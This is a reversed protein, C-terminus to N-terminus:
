ACPKTFPTTLPSDLVSTLDWLAGFAQGVAIGGDNPPIDKHTLVEFGSARLKSSVLELLLANQFCGGSLAITEVGAARAVTDAADALAHHFGLSLSEASAGRARRQSIREVIAHWNVEFLSSRDNPREVDFGLREIRRANLAAVEVMSALQGEYEGIHGLGLLVSAGDFLRGLSSCRPSAISRQFMSDLGRARIEDFGLDVGYRTGDHGPGPHMLAFAIRRADKIAAEGGLLPFPQFRAFRTAVRERLLIFEGGWITGDEGYGTGDWALGLVRNADRGNEALCSLIHALHHQVRMVPVGLSEAYRTSAYDPHKDCVVGTVTAASFRRLMEVSEEFRELSLASSLSGGEPALTLRNTSVIAPASKMQAGTCIWSGKVEAPLLIPSLMYGRARRLTIIGAESLRVVSDDIPHSIPRNHDLFGDAIDALRRHAENEDTCLPEDSINGSTAILPGEFQGLLLVHLPTYALIVGIWPNSGISDCLLPCKERRPLLVIPAAASSLLEDATSGIDVFPSAAARDRFMVALPKAYRHKRTRLRLVAAANSADVMLHYGGLGKAAVIMGARLLSAAAVLADAGQGITGDPGLFTLKPGCVACAIPEAHFRRDAPSEYEARCRECMHFGNMTTNSRDYPIRDIITYRPGCQTCNTFAYGHRRCKPNLIEAICGRCVAADPPIEAPSLAPSPDSETIRFDSLLGGQGRERTSISVGAVSARSPPESIISEILGEVARPLGIAMIQVGAADNRVWGTLNLEVAKRFVFPRFGVGQVTGHVRLTAEINQDARHAQLEIRVHWLRGFSHM